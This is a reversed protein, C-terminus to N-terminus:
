GASSRTAKRASSGSCRWRATLDCKDILSTPSAPSRARPGAWGHQRDLGGAPPRRQQAPLGDRGRPPAVQPNTATGGAFVRRAQGGPVEIRYLAHGGREEVEAIVAKADPVWRFASISLDWEPTVAIRRGTAREYLMLQQRDAEFGPTAMALYAIYRATRPTAAPFPRQGPSTTIAQRASGDPGMVFIDNNTSTALVSDPNYVVAVETGTPSVAMDSGGLALPPVDRDFPTVDTITAM